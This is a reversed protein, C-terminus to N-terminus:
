SDSKEGEEDEMQALESELKAVRAREDASALYAVGISGFYLVVMPGAMLIQTMPEPPTLFAALVFMAVTMGKYHRLLTKHTIIGARALFFVGLPFEFMLGFGLLLRTAYRAYDAYAFKQVIAVGGTSKDLAYKLLWETALPLVFYYCFAAGATFMFASTVVFPIVLKKERNYLGPAIFMWLHYFLFPGAVFLAAVVAIRVDTLFADLAGLNQLEPTGKLELTHWANEFPKVLFITLYDVFAYCLGFGLALSLAARILRKRLESLHDFFSMPQDGEPGEGWGDQGNKHENSM